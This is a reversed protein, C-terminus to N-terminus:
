LAHYYEHSNVVGDLIVKDMRDPFMAAVTAGLTTGYSAGIFRFSILEQNSVLMYHKQLRKGWYRLMGDEDLADVVSMLDRAGFATGLFSGIDSIKSSCTEAIYQAEVWSQGVAIDSANSALPFIVAIEAIETTNFCEVPLTDVTGSFCYTLPSYL